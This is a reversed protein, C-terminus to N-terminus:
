QKNELKQSNLDVSCAMSWMEMIKALRQPGSMM